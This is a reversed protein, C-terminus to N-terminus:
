GLSDATFCLNNLRARSCTLLPMAHMVNRLSTDTLYRTGAFTEKAVAFAQKAKSYAELQKKEDDSCKNEPKAQAKPPVPCVPIDQSAQFLVGQLADQYFSVGADSSPDVVSVAEESDGDSLLKFAPGTVAGPSTKEVKDDLIVVSSIPNITVSGGALTLRNLNAKLYDMSSQLLYASMRQSPNASGNALTLQTETLSAHALAEECWALPYGVSALQDRCVVFSNRKCEEAYEAKLEPLRALIWEVAVPLSGESAALAQAAWSKQFGMESFRQTSDLPALESLNEVAPVDTSLALRHVATPGRVSMSPPFACCPSRNQFYSAVVNDVTFYGYGSGANWALHLKHVNGPNMCRETHNGFLELHGSPELVVAPNSGFSILPTPSPPLQVVGLEITFLYQKLDQGAGVLRDFFLEEGSALSLCQKSENHLSLPTYNTLGGKVEESGRVLRIPKFATGPVFRYNEKTIEGSGVGYDNAIRSFGVSSLLSIQKSDLSFRWFALNSVTAKVNSCFTLTSDESILGKLQSPWRLNKLFANVSEQTTSDFLCEANFYVAISRTGDVSISMVSTVTVPESKPVENANKKLWSREGSPSAELSSGARLTFKKKDSSAKEWTVGRATPNDLCAAQADALTQFRIPSGTAYGLLYKDEHPGTFQLSIGKKEVKLDPTQLLNGAFSTSVTRKTERDTLKVCFAKFDNTTLEFCLGSKAESDICLLKVTGQAEFGNLTISSTFGSNKGEGPLTVKVESQRPIDTCNNHFIVHNFSQVSPTAGDAKM